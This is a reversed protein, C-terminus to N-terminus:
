TAPYPLLCLGALGYVGGCRQSGSSNDSAIWLGASTILMDDAGYGRDRTYLATGSSNLMLNGSAPILGEMGPAAYGGPGLSDCGYTNMSYREHGGFYAASADAATSFLSDCGTYNIWESYVAAQTSPFAAAADCLGMRRGSTPWNNAEYGTDALYVTSDDPSWSAAQIYFPEFTACQYPYGQHPHAPTAEGQSGDWQPSTWGTVSAPTTALNLMFVQQRPLGGVSTFDGMILDLTGSHSIAQNYINTVNTSVGPYQYNGSIGLHIFGDDKGTVPNLSTLYPDAASGNISTYYGGAIIHSGYSALTEVKGAASHGFTAVVDGTTTDIEALNRVTTAGVATFKGGIYADACNTGSFTITNVIGNVVPAWSSVTYPKVASFSFINTRNYVISQRKIQSFTGVAYMTNGCQAIQRIQDTGNPNALLHPTGTVPTSLVPGSPLTAARTATASGALAAAVTVAALGSTAALKWPKRHM